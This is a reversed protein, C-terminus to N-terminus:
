DDLLFRLFAAAVAVGDHHNKARGMSDEFTKDDFIGQAHRSELLENMIEGNFEPHGQVSIFKRPVYMAQVKCRDSEGLDQVGEPYEYVIDRHMQHLSLKDLGFVEKGKETLDVGCVSTEWGVESRAVKAGLARGLIQHGFCVGVIRVRDQALIEKIFEVLKLIWPEDDFSNHKSGTILVADIEGIEPYVQEYVVDWRSIELGKKSSLGERGLVDAGSKLLSTFVGGYGGHKARTRPLPTDAELVAIRLPLHHPM